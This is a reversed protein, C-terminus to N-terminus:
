GSRVPLGARRRLANFFNVPLLIPALVVSVASLAIRALLSGLRPPPHGPGGHRRAPGAVTGMWLKWQWGLVFAATPLDPATRDDASPHFVEACVPDFDAYREVTRRVPLGPPLAVFPAAAATLLLYERSAVSNKLLRHVLIVDPGAWEHLGAVEHNLAVGAHVILKLRLGGLHTCAGCTCTTASALAHLSRRFTEFFGLLRRGWVSAAAGADPDCGPQRAVFFVADGELKALELPLEAHRVIAQILETIVTQSHALSKANATLFRTYGSIDALM